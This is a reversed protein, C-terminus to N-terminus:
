VVEVTYQVPSGAGGLLRWKGTSNVDMLGYSKVTVTAGSAGISATVDSPTWLRQFYLSPSGEAAFGRASSVSSQGYALITGSDDTKHLYVKMGLGGEPYASDQGLEFQPIMASIKLYQGTLLTPVTFTFNVGLETKSAHTDVWNSSTSHPKIAVVRPARADVYAKRTFQNATTPDTAPGSPIATFALSADKQIVESNIFGTLDNFNTNVDAAIAAAGSVFTNSVSATAM